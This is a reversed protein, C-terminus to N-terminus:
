ALRVSGSLYIPRQELDPFTTRQQPTSDPGPFTNGPRQRGDGPQGAPAGPPPAAPPAQGGAPEQSFCIPPLLLTIVLLTAVASGCLSLSNKMFIATGCMIGCYFFEFCVFGGSRLM